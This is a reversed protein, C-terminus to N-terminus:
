SRKAGAVLGLDAAHNRVEVEPYPGSGGADAWAQWAANAANVESGLVIASTVGDSFDLESGYAWLTQGSAWEAAAAATEFGDAHAEDFYLSGADSMVYFRDPRLEEPDGASPPHQRERNM